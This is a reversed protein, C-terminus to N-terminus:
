TSPIQSYTKSEIPWVLTLVLLDLTGGLGGAKGCLSGERSTASNLPPPPPPPPSNFRGLFM